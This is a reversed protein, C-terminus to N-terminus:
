LLQRVCVYIEQPRSTKDSEPLHKYVMGFAQVCDSEHTSTVTKATISPSSYGIAEPSSLLSPCNLPESAANAKLWWTPERWSLDMAPHYLPLSRPLQGLLRLLLCIYLGHLPHPYLHPYPYPHPQPHLRVQSTSSLDMGTSKMIHLLIDFSKCNNCLQKHACLM